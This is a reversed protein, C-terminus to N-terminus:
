KNLREGPRVEREKKFATTGEEKGQVLMSSIPAESPLVKISTAFPHQNSALPKQLPKHPTLGDLEGCGQMQGINRNGIKKAAGYPRARHREYRANWFSGVCHAVAGRLCPASQLTMNLKLAQGTGLEYRIRPDFFLVGAGGLPVCFSIRHVNQCAINAFSRLFNQM